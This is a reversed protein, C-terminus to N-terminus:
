LCVACAYVFVYVCVSRISPRMCLHMVYVCCVFKRLVHFFCVVCLYDLRSSHCRDEPKQTVVVYGSGTNKITYHSAKLTGVAKM